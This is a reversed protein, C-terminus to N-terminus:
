LIWAHLLYVSLESPETHGGSTELYPFAGGESSTQTSMSRPPPLVQVRLAVPLSNLVGVLPLLEVLGSGGPAFPFPPFFTFPIGAM